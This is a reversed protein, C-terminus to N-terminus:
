KSCTRLSGRHLSPAMTSTAGAPASSAFFCLHGIYVVTGPMIVAM